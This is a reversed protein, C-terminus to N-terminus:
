VQRQRRNGYDNSYYSLGMTIDFRAWNRKKNIQTKNDHFFKEPLRADRGGPPLLSQAPQEDGLRRQAFSPM